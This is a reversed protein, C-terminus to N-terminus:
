KQQLKSKGREVTFHEDGELLVWRFRNEHGSKAALGLWIGIRDDFLVSESIANVIWLSPKVGEKKPLIKVVEGTRIENGM